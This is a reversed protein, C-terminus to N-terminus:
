LLHVCFIVVALLIIWASAGKNTGLILYDLFCTHWKPSMLYILGPFSTNNEKSIGVKLINHYHKATQKAAWAIAEDRFLNTSMRWLLSEFFHMLVYIAVLTELNPRLILVPNSITHYIAQILSSTNELVNTSFLIHWFYIHYWNYRPTTSRRNTLHIDLWWHNLILQM